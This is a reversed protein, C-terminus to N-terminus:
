SGGNTEGGSKSGLAGWVGYPSAGFRAETYFGHGGGGDPAGGTLPTSQTLDGTDITDPVFRVSGDALAASVGGPHRSNPPLLGGNGAWASPACSPSNPPLITNHGSFYPNGNAWSLGVRRTFPTTYYNGGGDISGFCSSPNARLGEISFEIAVNGRKQGPETSFCRESFVITNSTGDQIDQMRTNTRFGFVGRPAQDEPDYGIEPIWDGSCFSYNTRGEHNGYYADHITPPAKDSPCILTAIAVQWPAYNADWPRPGYGDAAIQDHLPGQEIFALLCIFGGGANGNGDGGEEPASTGTGGQRYPFTLHTDHYNHLGLALQKLNNACQMRRAAERAQQVAPLLLAVLVGIIAIVVLLEVLTFASLKRRAALSPPSPYCNMPHRM